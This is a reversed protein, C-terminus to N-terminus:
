GMRHGLRGTELRHRHVPEHLYLHCRLPESPGGSHRLLSRSCRLWLRFWAAVTGDRKLALAHGGGAEIATIHSFGDVDSLVSSGSGWAVLTGDSKLAMSNFGSAAVATVNSVGPPVDIRGYLDSGWAVVTGSAASVSSPGLALLGAALGLTAIIKGALATMPHPAFACQTGEDIGIPLVLGSVQLVPTNSASFGLSSWHKASTLILVSSEFQRLV